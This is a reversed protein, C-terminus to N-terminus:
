PSSKVSLRLAACAIAAASLFIRTPLHLGVPVMMAALNFAGLGERPQLQVLSHLPRWERTALASPPQQLTADYPSHIGRTVQWQWGVGMAHAARAAPRAAHNSPPAGAMAAAAAAAALRSGRVVGHGPGDVM